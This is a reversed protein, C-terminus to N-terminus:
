FTVQAGITLMRLPPLSIINLTEPDFGGYKTLAFLNQGNFFLRASQLHMKKIIVAPLQYSLSINKLKIYSADILDRTGSNNLTSPDASFQQYNSIDGPKQWRDLVRIPQNGYGDTSAFVGAPVYGAIDKATQKAFQLLFTLEIGRYSISNQFGGYYKSARDYVADLTSSNNYRGTIPNVGFFTNDRAISLSQGILYQQAFTSTALNPFDLLKNSPITVNLGSKWTFNKTKVNETNLSFEWGSNQILAPLNDTISNFGTVIPLNVTTLNNSSRNRLYNVTVLVRDKVFGLDIGFQLKRTEEWQLNPNPLGAPDLGAAGQYPVQGITTRFLSMFRYNGIQDNGTTGYSGRLKGFSLIHQSGKIFKEETFIWGVGIAGFNHFLNDSGFRSSGDRRATLNFLYKGALSYAIRGFVANYRYRALDVGSATVSTASAMDKLQQDSPQGSAGIGRGLNDQQQITSGLLLEFNGIKTKTRWSIQPEVIWIKINNFSFSAFRLHGLRVEPKFSNNLSAYFQDTMLSNYGFNSKIELGPIIQYSLVANSTLTNTKSEFLTYMNALPNLWTSNGNATPDPAWNLTGDANYLAPAVPAFNVARFTFDESPLANRGARFTGSLQLRFKQNNTAANLNFHLSGTTNAFDGPFVSSESGYTGSVLYSMNAAGGSIGATIRSFRATGGILEEQWDTYRTTDWIGRLDYDTTNVRANNNRKAERRMEMYQQSNLLDLKKPLGGWGQEVNINIKSQGAVGKRTTILLAGNAARSGYIATADADKLVDISEIDAPNINSLPNGQPGQESALGSSNGLITTAGAVAFPGGTFTTLNQSPYPVGDIVILPDSNTFSPNLNNQGQIRIKIGGGPIGNSQIVEVGPIRGQLALLPNNVPQKEIDERKLTGSNSTTFRKTDTGYAKITVEDLLNNNRKLSFNIMKRKVVPMTQKAFGVFEIELTANEDVGKLIYLGEANTTTGNNTGRVKVSAGVLPNGEEDSVKGSVDINVSGPAPPTFLGPSVDPTVSGLLKKERVSIIHGNLIVEIKDQTRNVKEVAVEVPVNNVDIAVPKGKERVLIEDFSLSYNSQKQIQKLVKELTASKEKLTVQASATPRALAQLVLLLLLASMKMIRLMQTVPKNGSATLQM